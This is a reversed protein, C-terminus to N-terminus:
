EAVEVTRDGLYGSIKIYQQDYRVEMIGKITGKNVVQGPIDSQALKM